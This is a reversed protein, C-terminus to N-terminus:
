LGVQLSGAIVFLIFEETSEVMVTVTMKIMATVSLDLHRAMFLTLALVPLPMLLAFLLAAFIARSVKLLKIM